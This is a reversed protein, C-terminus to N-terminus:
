IKYNKITEKITGVPLIAESVNEGNDTSWVLRDGEDTKILYLYCQGDEMATCTLDFLGKILEEGDGIFYKEANRYLDVADIEINNICLEEIPSKSYFGFTTKLEVVDVIEFM